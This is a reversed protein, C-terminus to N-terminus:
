HGGKGTKEFMTHLGAELAVVLFNIVSARSIKDEGVAEWVDRTSMPETARWIAKMADLQYPKFFMLLGEQSLDMKLKLELIIDSLMDYIYKYFIHVCGNVGRAYGIGAGLNFLAFM